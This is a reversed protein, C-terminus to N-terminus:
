NKSVEQERAEKLVPRAMSAAEVLRELVGARVADDLECVRFQMDGTFQLAAKCHGCICFDGVEPSRPGKFPDSAWHIEEHCAPCKPKSEVNYTKM